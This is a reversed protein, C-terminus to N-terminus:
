LSSGRGHKVEEGEWDDWRGLNVKWENVRWIQFFFFSVLSNGNTKSGQVLGGAMQWAWNLTGPRRTISAWDLTGPRRTKWARHIDERGCQGGLWWRTRMEWTQLEKEWDWIQLHQVGLGQNGLCGMNGVDGRRRGEDVRGDGDQM